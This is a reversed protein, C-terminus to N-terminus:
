LALLWPPIATMPPATQGAPVRQEVWATVGHRGPFLLAGAGASAGWQRVTTRELGRRWALWVALIAAGGACRLAIMLLPPIDAVAYRIALFTAGWFVYIAAFAAAMTMRGARAGTM